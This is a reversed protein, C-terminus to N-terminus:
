GDPNIIGKVQLGISPRYVKKQTVKVEGTRNYPAPIELRKSGLPDSGSPIAGPVPRSELSGDPFNVRRVGGERKEPLAAVSRRGEGQCETSLGQGLNVQKSVVGVCRCYVASQVDFSVVGNDM